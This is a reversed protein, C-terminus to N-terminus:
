KSKKQIESEIMNFLLGGMFIGYITSNLPSSTIACTGSACGVFYYYSYGGIAGLITGLITLRYKKLKSTM